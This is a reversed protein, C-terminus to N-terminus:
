RSRSGQNSNWRKSKSGLQSFSPCERANHGKGGCNECKRSFCDRALHGPKNCGFCLRSESTKKATDKVPNLSKMPFMNSEESSQEEFGSESSVVRSRLESLEEQMERAWQPVFEKATSQELNFVFPEEKVEVREEKIKKQLKEM